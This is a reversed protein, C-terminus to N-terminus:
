ESMSGCRKCPLLERRLWSMSTLRGMQLLRSIPSNLDFIAEDVVLDLYSFVEKNWVGLNASFRLRLVPDRWANFFKFSNPGWNMDGGKIWIPLHDSLDKNGVVPPPDVVDLSGIFGFFKDMELRNVSLASGKREWEMKPVNFNGGLCWEGM